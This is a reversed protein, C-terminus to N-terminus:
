MVHCKSCDDTAFAVKGDHCKGCSKGENMPQMTLARSNKKMPFLADHCQRCSFRAMHAQHNFEVPMASTALKLSNLEHCSQCVRPKIGTMEHGQMAHCETCHLGMARHGDHKFVKEYTEYAHCGFCPLGRLGMSAPAISAKPEVTAQAKHPISALGLALAGAALVIAIATILATPKM